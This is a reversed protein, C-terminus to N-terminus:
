GIETYIWNAKHRAFYSAENRVTGVVDRWPDCVVAEDGWTRYDTVDSGRRRGIIVFAHQYDNVEMWDLPFTKQRRLFVFAIASQEGCNGCGYAEAAAASKEMILRQVQHELKIPHRTKISPLGAMIDKDVQKRMDGTNIASGSCAWAIPFDVRLKNSAGITMKSKVYQNAITAASLNYKLKSM